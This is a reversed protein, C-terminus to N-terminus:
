KVRFVWSRNLLYTTIPVVCASVVASMVPSMASLKLATVLAINNLSFGILVTVLFRWLARQWNLYEFFTWYYHGLFSIGLALSFAIANAILPRVQFGDILAWVVGVHM